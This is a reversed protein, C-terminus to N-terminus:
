TISSFNQIFNLFAVADIAHLFHLPYFDWSNFM